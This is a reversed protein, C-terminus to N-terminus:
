LVRCQDMIEGRIAPPPETALRQAISDFNGQFPRLFLLKLGSKEFSAADYLEVGGPSNLYETAGLSQCIAKIRQEGRLDEPIALESSRKVQHPLGLVECTRLLLREIYDVPAGILSSILPALGTDRLGTSALCPFRRLAADWRDQGDPAFELDRIRVERTQKTLPLTLWHPEGTASRLRNRHVWSRRPFQVCDYIVFLDAAAFLRFYGAYPAFYPQMIAIRM